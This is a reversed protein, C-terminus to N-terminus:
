VFVLGCLRLNYLLYSTILEEYSIEMIESEWFEKFTQVKTLSFQSGSPTIVPLYTKLRSIVAFSASFQVPQQLTYVVVDTHGNQQNNQSQDIIIEGGLWIMLQHPKPEDYINKIAGKIFNKPIKTKPVNFDFWDQLPLDFGVGSMYNHLSIRLGESFMEHDAGKPDEHFLDNDAFGLFEPGVKVVEYSQPDLGVPSHATMAFQHWFGSQIIGVELMQRVIEMSDITERATQTPFGYMLYAHVLINSQTFNSAVNAVQRVTVGKKMKELLRDSAVELGGTVAICGSAALLKCLDLTFSKEFRINTWWSIQLGRRLIEIALDRMLAPPAAEDVFHFGTSGTQHIIEEIRDCLIKADIPEYRAIYDLSVDCFSCKGWYCGHALTLKNWRGDSWKRHMPNLVELVSIYQDLKLDSYDPTGVDRQAVDFDATNNEFSVGGKSALFTRKFEPNSKGNHHFELIKRLPTEGDDLTLYDFYQFVREDYVSRLETNVYGGGLICVVKPFHKKITKAIYFASFVNGPFPATICVFEPNVEEIYQQVLEKLIRTVATDKTNLAEHLPSFDTATRSIREAYRSFGFDEDVENKIFDGIDELFLTALHKAMDQIGMEGFAWSLDDLNDFRPGEPLFNRKVISHALTPNKGQLFQIVVDIKSCYYYKNRFIEASLDNNWVSSETFCQYIAQLSHSCFLKLFTELSLDVQFSSIDLTNLYGKLYMTAPYPTNLQTFPPTILLVSRQNKTHM